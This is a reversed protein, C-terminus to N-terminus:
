FSGLGKGKDEGTGAGRQNGEREGGLRSGAQKGVGPSSRREPNVELHPSFCRSSRPSSSLRRPSVPKTVVTLLTSFPMPTQITCKGTSGQHPLAYRISNQGGLDWVQFQLNNYNVVEM